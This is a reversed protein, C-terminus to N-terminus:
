EEPEEELDDSGDPAGVPVLPAVSVSEALEPPGLFGREEIELDRIAAPDVIGGRDGAFMPLRFMRGDPMAMYRQRGKTIPLPIGYFCQVVVDQGELAAVRDALEEPSRFVRTYAWEGNHSEVLGYRMSMPKPSDDPEDAAAAIRSMLAPNLMDRIGAFEAVGPENTRAAPAAKEGHQRNVIAERARPSLEEMFALFGDKGKAM